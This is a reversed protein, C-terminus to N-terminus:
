APGTLQKAFHHCALNFGKHLYLRHAPHLTYGSDLHVTQINAAKALQEVHDLLSGAYGKGRYAPDTYLDDVYIMQGTRLMHQFRYGIFAVAKTNEDDPIYDLQYSEQQIMHMTLDLYTNEELNTRFAFLAEKCFIVQEKTTASEIRM